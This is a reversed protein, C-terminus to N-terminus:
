ANNLGLEDTVDEWTDRDVVQEDYFVSDSKKIYEQCEKKTDFSEKINNVGGDEEFDHWAFVIYKKYKHM